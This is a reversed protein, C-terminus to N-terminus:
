NWDSKANSIDDFVPIIQRINLTSFLDNVMSNTACLRMQGGTWKLLKNMTLIVSVSLSDFFTIDEFDILIKRFGAMELLFHRKFFRSGVPHNMVGGLHFVCFDAEPERNLTLRIDPSSEFIDQKAVNLGEATEVSFVMDLGTASFMDHIDSSINRLTFNRNDKRLQMALATMEGIGSCDISCTKQFDMVVASQKDKWVDPRSETLEKLVKGTLTHPVPLILHVSDTATQMKGGNIASERRLICQQWVQTKLKAAYNDSFVGPCNM